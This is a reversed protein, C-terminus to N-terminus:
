YTESMTEKVEEILLFHSDGSIRYLAYYKFIIAMMDDKDDCLIFVITLIKFIMCNNPTKTGIGKDDIFMKPDCMQYNNQPDDASLKPVITETSLFFGFM